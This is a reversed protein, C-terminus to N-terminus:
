LYSQVKNSFFYDFYKDIRLYTEFIDRAQKQKRIFEEDSIRNHYEVVKDTIGNIQNSPIRMIFDDYPIEDEFPLACDTDVFVPVRGLSLIEFFRQSFNGNGRVCLAYDNHKINEIFEKRMTDKDMNRTKENVAYASRLIFDTKLKSSKKLIQIIQSRYFIGTKHQLFTNKIGAKIRDGITTYTAWGCFGFSPINQKDRFVIPAGFSLDEVYAPMLVENPLLNKKYVSQRLIISNKVVVRETTDGPLFIIIKKKYKESLQEFKELYGPISEVHQYFHPVLLCDAQEPQSVLEVISESLYDFAHDSWREIKRKPTGWNPYLLEIYRVNELPVHTFVKLM